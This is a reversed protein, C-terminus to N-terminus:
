ACLFLYLLFPMILEPKQSIGIPAVPGLLTMLFILFFFNIYLWQQALSRPNDQSRDRWFAGVKGMRTIELAVWEGVLINGAHYYSNTRNSAVFSHQNVCIGCRSTSRSRKWKGREKRSSLLVSLFGSFLFGQAREGKEESMLLQKEEWVSERWAM